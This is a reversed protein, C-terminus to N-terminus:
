VTVADTCKHICSCQACTGSHFRINVDVLPNNLTCPRVTFGAFAKKRAEAEEKQGMSAWVDTYVVDAEKVAAAPEHMIEAKGKSDAGNALDMTAQDPEFGEPCCCIFRCCM